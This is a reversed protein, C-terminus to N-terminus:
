SYYRFMETKESMLKPIVRLQFYKRVHLPYRPGYMFVSKKKSHGHMDIYALISTQLLTHKIIKKLHYITPHLRKDPKTYTRNLDNGSFSSRYNGVIVGDPNLMPIIKFVISRRLERAKVSNGILFKLFGHMIWSCNTEGPHVRATSVIVPKPTPTEPEGVEAETITLMPVEIGSLSCCLMDVRVISPNRTALKGVVKVVKSFTYPVSYAFFV